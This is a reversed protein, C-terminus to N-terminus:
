VGIPEPEVPADHAANTERTIFAMERRLRAEARRADAARSATRWAGTLLLCVGHSAVAGVAIGFLFLTGTGGM